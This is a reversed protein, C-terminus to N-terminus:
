RSSAPRDRRRRWDIGYWLCVALPIGLAVSSMVDWVGDAALGALLGILSLVALVIPMRWMRWDFRRQLEQRHRKGTM